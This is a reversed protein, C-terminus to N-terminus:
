EEKDKKNSNRRNIEVRPNFLAMLLGYLLASIVIQLVSRWIEGTRFYPFILMILAYIVAFMSSFRVFRKLFTDKKSM